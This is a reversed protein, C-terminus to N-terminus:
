KWGSLGLRSRFRPDQGHCRCALCGLQSNLRNANRLGYACLQFSSSCFGDTYQAYSTRYADPGVSTWDPLFFVNTQSKISTWDAANGPGEFTSVLAKNLVKFQAPKVAYTNIMSVVTAASWPGQAAYDFSLFMKFGQQDAANFANNLQTTTYPTQSAINLAFADIGAAKAKRIDTIWDNM